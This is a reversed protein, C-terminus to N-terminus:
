KSGKPKFDALWGVEQMKTVLQEACAYAGGGILGVTLREQPEDVEWRDGWVRYEVNGHHGVWYIEYDGNAIPKNIFQIKSVGALSLIRTASGQLPLTDQTFRVTIQHERVKHTM